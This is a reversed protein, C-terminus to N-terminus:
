RGFAGCPEEALDEAIAAAQARLQASSARVARGTIAVGLAEAESRLAAPVPVPRGTPVFRKAEARSASAALHADAADPSPVGDLARGGTLHARIGPVTSAALTRLEPTSLSTLFRIQDPKLRALALAVTDPAAREAMLRAVNRIALAQALTLGGAPAPPPPPAAGDACDEWATPAPDVRPIFGPFMSRLCRGMAGFAALIAALLRRLKRM